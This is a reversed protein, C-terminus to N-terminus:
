LIIKRTTVKGSNHLRVIVLGSTSFAVSNSSTKKIFKGTADYLEMFDFVGNVVLQKTAANYVLQPQSNVADMGTTISLTASEELGYFKYGDM